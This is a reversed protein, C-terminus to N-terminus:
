FFTLFSLFFSSVLSFSFYRLCFSPSPSSSSSCSLLLLSSSFHLLPVLSPFPLPIVKLKKVPQPTTPGSDEDAGGEEEEEEEEKEKKEEKKEKEIMLARQRRLEAIDLDAEEKLLRAEDKASVKDAKEDEVDRPFLSILPFSLPPLRFFSSFSSLSTIFPVLLLLSSYMDDDDSPEEKKFEGDDKEDDVDGLLKSLAPLSLLIM